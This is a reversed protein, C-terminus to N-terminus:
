LGIDKRFFCKEFKIQEIGEYVKMRAHGINDGVATVGLVRGPGNTLTGNEKVNVGAYFLYLDNMESLKEDGSIEHGTEIKEGNIGPYGGSALVVHIATQDLIKIPSISNLNGETAKMMIDALDSEILPMLTQTEPDGFRVNFEIVNINRNDDIMLGAFLIGKYDINEEKCGKLFKDFVEQNIKNKLEQDILDLSSICGMGGTNPGTNGDNLRKYDRAYGINIFNNGDFLAFASIEKGKLREELIVKGSKIPFSPNDMINRLYLKAEEITEVVFVGKGAALGDAKVVPPIQDNWINLYELGDRLISVTKFKATPINYKEMFRKSFDKSSEFQSAKKSPGLVRINQKQLQDVIGDALPDEPGIFVLDIQNERAFNAIHFGDIKQLHICEIRENLDAGPNGPAIFVKEILPSMALKWAIAHERGGKGVVLYKM